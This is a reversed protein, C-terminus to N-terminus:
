RYNNTLDCHYFETTFICWLCKLWIQSTAEFSIMNQPRLVIILVFTINRIRSSAKTESQTRWHVSQKLMWLYKTCENSIRLPSTFKHWIGIQLLVLIVQFLISLRSRLWWHLKDSENNTKHTKRWLLKQFRSWKVIEIEHIRM